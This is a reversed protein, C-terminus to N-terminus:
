IVITEFLKTKDFLDIFRVKVAVGDESSFEIDDKSINETKPYLVTVNESSYKKQYAYMQYMDAQSIGYNPKSESLVKWKTDMVFICGDSKRTIVIDPKMLFKKEPEDFLHYKRDQASVSYGKPILERKLM